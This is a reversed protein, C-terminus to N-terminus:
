EAPPMRESEDAAHIRRVLESQDPKGPVIARKGSEAPALASDRVDLRLGAKREAADPGHCRLCKEALIPRSQRNFDIKEAPEAAFTPSMASVLLWATFLIRKM